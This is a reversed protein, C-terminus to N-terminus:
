SPAKEKQSLRMRSDARREPQARNSVSSMCSPRVISENVIRFGKTAAAGAFAEAEPPYLDQVPSRRPRPGRRVHATWAPAVSGTCRAGAVDAAPPEEYAPWPGLELAVRSGPTRTPMSTPPVNVSRTATSPSDTRVAFTGLVGALGSSPAMCAISAAPRSGPAISSSTWPEVTAVLATRSRLPAETQRKTVFPM